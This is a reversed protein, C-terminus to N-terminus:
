SDIRTCVERYGPCIANLGKTYEVLKELTAPRSKQLMDPDNGLLFLDLGPYKSSGFCRSLAMRALRARETTPPLTAFIRHDIMPLQYSQNLARALDNLHFHKGERISVTMRKKVGGQLQALTQRAAWELGTWDFCLTPDDSTPCGGLDLLGGIVLALLDDEHPLSLLYGYRLTLGPVGALMREAVAKSQSYGGPFASLPVALSSAFHIPRGLLALRRLPHVNISELVQYSFSLDVRAALHLVVEVRQALREWQAPSLGFDSKELDAELEREQNAKRQLSWVEFEAELLPRLAGGLRGTGGTLLLGPRRHRVPPGSRFSLPAPKECPQRLCLHLRELSTLQQEITEGALAQLAARDIKFSQNRPLEGLGIYHHPLWPEPLQDSLASRLLEEEAERDGRSEWYLIVRKSWVECAVSTHLLARARHEVEEPEFRQGYLQVQRDKRGRFCLGYRPHAQGVLDGTRYWREGRLSYFSSSQSPSEGLYGLGVTPGGILLEDEEVRYRVGPLPLGLYPQDWDEGVEVLSSCVTTESPGYVCLVRHSRSWQRLVEPPSAEGGVVLTHLSPTLDSPRFVELLAPPIDLHTIDEFRDPRGSEGCVLTAGACLATGLDSLSADFGPSLMWGVRSNSDIGFAQIQSNLVRYLSGCGVQIVKPRGSSGSTTVLYEAQPPPTPLSRLEEVRGPPTAPDLLLPFRGCYWAALLKVVLRCSRPEQITVIGRPLDRSCLLAEEWLERYTLAEESDSVALNEPYREVVAEIAEIVRM